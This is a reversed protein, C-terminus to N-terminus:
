VFASKRYFATERVNARNRLKIIRVIMFLLFTLFVFVIMSSLINDSVNNNLLISFGSVRKSLVLEEQVFTSYSESNLNILLNLSGSLASDIPVLTEFIQRQNASIVKKNSIEAVNKNNSDVLLFQLEVNQEKGSLEELYYSILVKDNGQREAKIFEFRIQKKIVEVLIDASDSIENCFVNIKLNYKGANTNEPISVEFMLEGSEGASLSKVANSNIWSSYEGIKQIKCDTLFGFGSNKIRANSKKSEGGNLVISSIEGLELKGIPLITETHSSGSGGGGGGGGSVVITGGSTDVSFASSKSILNGASDNVKLYIQYNGDDGVDFTTSSCNINTNTRYSLYEVGNSRTLNYSCTINNADNTVFTLPIGTKSTKAGTPQTLTLNPTITDIIFTKNEQSIKNLTDNCLIGWKYQGDSLNSIIFYNDELSISTNEEYLQWSNNFDGYLYCSSIGAGSIVSYNLYISSNYNIYSNDSPYLLNLAPATTLISFNRMSLGLNGLSDNAYVYITHTGDSANFTTNQCNTLNLNEISYYGSSNRISYWCSSVASTTDFVSFNLELSTNRGYVKDEPIDINIVPVISDVFFSVSSFNFNNFSDNAYAILINSGQSFDYVISSNYTINNSGNFFWISKLNADLASINIRITSNTYSQNLPSVINLSPNITDKFFTVSSFNVNGLSDNAWVRWSNSGENSILGTLNNGCTITTNTAGNNLSYWCARINEDAVNYNLTSININYSTNQPYTISISPPTSDSNYDISLSQYDLYTNVSGGSPRSTYARIKINKIDLASSIFSSLNCTKNEWIDKTGFSYNCGSVNIWSLNSNNFIQIKWIIDIQSVSITNTLIAQTIPINDQLITSWTTNVWGSNLSDVKIPPSIQDILTINNICNFNNPTNFNSYCWATSPSIILNDACVFSILFVFLFMGIVVLSMGRKEIM